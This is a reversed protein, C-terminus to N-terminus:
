DQKSADEIAKLREEFDTLEQIKLMSQISTIFMGGIDSPINGKAIASMVDCAQEHPKAGKRFKFEVNPSVSKLPPEIRNLILTLLVPNPTQFIPEVPEEGEKPEPKTWGGLGISVVQKLFDEENGCVSRIADLMLTKKAKGRPPLNDGKKLTTKTARTNAM